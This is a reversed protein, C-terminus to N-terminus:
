ERGNGHWGERVGGVWWGPSWSCCDAVPCWGARFTGQPIQAHVHVRVLWSLPTDPPSPLFLLSFIWPLFTDSSVCINGSSVLIALMKLEKGIQWCKNQSDWAGEEGPDLTGFCGIQFQIHRQLLFFLSVLFFVLFVNLPFHLSATSNRNRSNNQWSIQSGETNSLKLELRKLCFAIETGQSEQDKWAFLHALVNKM